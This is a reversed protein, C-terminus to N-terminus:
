GGFLNSAWISAIMVGGGFLVLYFLRDLKKKIRDLKEITRDFGDDGHGYREDAREIRKVKKWNLGELRGIARWMKATDDQQETTNMNSAQRNM